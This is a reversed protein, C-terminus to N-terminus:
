IRLLLFVRHIRSHVIIKSHYLIDIFVFGSHLHSLQVHPLFYGKLKIKSPVYAAQRSQDYLDYGGYGHYGHCIYKILCISIYTIM